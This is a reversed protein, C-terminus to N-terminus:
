ALIIDTLLVNYHFISGDVKIYCTNDYADYQDFKTVNKPVDTGFLSKDGIFKIDDNMKFGVQKKGKKPNGDMYDPTRKKCDSPSQAGDFPKKPNHPVAMTPDLLPKDLRDYNM